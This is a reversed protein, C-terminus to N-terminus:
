SNLEKVKEESHHKKNVNIWTSGGVSTLPINEGLPESETKNHDGFPDIDVDAM